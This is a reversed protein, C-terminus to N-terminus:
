CGTPGCGLDIRGEELADEADGVIELVDEPLRDEFERGVVFGIGDNEVSLSREGVMEEFEGEVVAEAVRYTASDVATVASGLIVDAYEEITASQDVDIGFGFRGRRDAAAFVGKGAGAAAHWVVDAGDDIQATAVREAGRPDEFSGAYGTLVEVDDNAWRAGQVYSREFVRLSDSEEGGVFGVVSREPDTRYQDHHFREDTMTGAAAGALFSLEDNRELWESVNDAGEITGDILMWSQDPYAAANTSLADAHFEGACIVLDYGEEAADAQISEYREPQTAPITRIGFGHESAAQQLGALAEDNFADDDFGAPTSVIAMEGEGDDGSDEELRGAGALCGTTAATGASLATALLTRRDIGSGTGPIGSGPRRGM